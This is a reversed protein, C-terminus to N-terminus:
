YWPKMRSITRRQPELPHVHRAGAVTIVGNPDIQRIGVAGGAVIVAGVTLYTSHHMAM